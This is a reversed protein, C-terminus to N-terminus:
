DLGTNLHLKTKLKEKLLLKPFLKARAVAIILSKAMGYSHSNSQSDFISLSVSNYSKNNM